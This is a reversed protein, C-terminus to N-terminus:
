CAPSTGCARTVGCTTVAPRSRSTVGQAVSVDRQMTIDGNIMRQNKGLTQEVRSWLSVRLPNAVPIEIPTRSTHRTGVRAALADHRRHRRARRAIRGECPALRHTPRERSVAHPRRPAARRTSRGRRQPSCWRLKTVWRRASRPPRRRTEPTEQRVGISHGSGVTRSGPCVSRCDSSTSNLASTAPTRPMQWSDVNSLRKFGVRKLGVAAAVTKLDTRLLEISGDIEDADGRKGDIFWADAAM